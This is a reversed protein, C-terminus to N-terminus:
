AKIRYDSLQAGNDLKAQLWEPPKGRGTWTQSHDDPNRYRARAPPFKSVFLPEPKIPEPKPAPRQVPRHYPKPAEDFLAIQM